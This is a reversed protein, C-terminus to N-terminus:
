PSIKVVNTDSLLDFFDLSRYAKGQTQPVQSIHNFKKVAKALYLYPFKILQKLLMFNLNFQKIIFITKLNQLSKEFQNRNEFVDFLDKM